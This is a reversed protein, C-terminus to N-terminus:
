FNPIPVTEGLYERLCDLGEIMIEISEKSGDIKESASQDAKAIESSITDLKESAQSFLKKLDDKGSSVQSTEIWTVSDQVITEGLSYPMSEISLITNEVINQCNTLNGSITSVNSLTYNHKSM